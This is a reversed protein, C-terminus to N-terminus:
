KKAKTKGPTIEKAKSGCYNCKLNTTKEGDTSTVVSSVKMEIECKKCMMKM